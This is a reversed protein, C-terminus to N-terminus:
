RCVELRQIQSIQLYSSDIMDDDDYLEGEVFTKVLLRLRPPPSGLSFGFIQKGKFRDFLKFSLPETDSNKDGFFFFPFYLAIPPFDKDKCYLCYPKQRVKIRSFYDSSLRNAHTFFIAFLINRRKLFCFFLLPKNM